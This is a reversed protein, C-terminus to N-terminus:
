AAPFAPMFALSCMTTSMCSGPLADNSVFMASARVLAMVLTLGALLATSAMVLLGLANSSLAFLTSHLLNWGGGSSPEPLGLDDGYSARDAPM